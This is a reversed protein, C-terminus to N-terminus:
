NNAQPYSNGHFVKKFIVKEEGEAMTFVLGLFNGWQRERNPSKEGRGLEYKIHWVKLTRAKKLVKLDWKEGKLPM